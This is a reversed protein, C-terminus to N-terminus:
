TWLESINELVIIHRCAEFVTFVNKTDTACTEHVYISKDPNTNKELFKNKFYNVGDKVDGSKGTYDSFVPISNIRTRKIKKEFLDVKNLFLIISSKVFYKNNCIEEFL